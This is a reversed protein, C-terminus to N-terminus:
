GGSNGPQLPNNVQIYRTDGQIGGLASISGTSAGVSPSLLGPLPFGLAVTEEALRPKTDRIKLYSHPTSFDPRLIAMDNNADFVILRAAGTDKQGVVNIVPCNEVVHYNTLIESNGNVFFVTGASETAGGASRVLMFDM